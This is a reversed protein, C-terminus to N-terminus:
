LIGHEYGKADAFKAKPELMQITGKLEIINNNAMILARAMVNEPSNWKKEIEIFHQRALKGRENLQVMAIEKAMDSTLIHDTLPKGAKGDSRELMKTVYDINESFGYECMRNFWMTYPTKVQLFEHLERGSIVPENNENVSVMVLENEM